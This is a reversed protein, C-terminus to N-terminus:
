PPLEDVACGGISALEKKIKSKLYLKEHLWVPMAALFSQLGRPACGLYTEILREFKLLPKEYFVVQTLDDVGVGARRLCSEIARRPFSADHRKRTFREEQAAAVVEGDVVLAAASDHYYASFGLIHSSGGM